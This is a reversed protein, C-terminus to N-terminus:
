SRVPRARGTRTALAAPAGGPLEIVVRATGSRREWLVVNLVASSVVLRGLLLLFALVAFVAGLSGYLASSSAVVRPVWFSGLVKLVALGVAGLVAGPLLPRWGVDRNTLVRATWLFLGADAAFGVAIGVPALWGPLFRLLAVLGSSGM